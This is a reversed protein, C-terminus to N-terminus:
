IFTRIEHLIHIQFSMGYVVSVGYLTGVQLYVLCTFISLFTNKRTFISLFINKGATILM